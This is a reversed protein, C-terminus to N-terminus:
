RHRSDRHGRSTYGKRVLEPVGYRIVVTSSYSKGTLDAYGASITTLCMVPIGSATAVAAKANEPM